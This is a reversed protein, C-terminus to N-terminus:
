AFPLWSAFRPPPTPPSRGRSAAPFSRSVWAFETAGWRPSLGLFTPRLFPEFREQAYDPYQPNQDTSETRAKQIEHCLQCPHEGDFTKEIAVKVTERQSYDAFMRVWAVSQLAFWHGGLSSVIALIMLIFGFHRIRRLMLM